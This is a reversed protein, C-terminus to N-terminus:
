HNFLLIRLSITKYVTYVINTDETHKCMSYVNNNLGSFNSQKVIQTYLKSNKPTENFICAFNYYRGIDPDNTEFSISPIVPDHEIYGDYISKIYFKHNM